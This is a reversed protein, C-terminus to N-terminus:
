EICRDNSYTAEIVICFGHRPVRIMPQRYLGNTDIMKIHLKFIEIHTHTNGFKPWRGKFSLFTIQAMSDMDFHSQLKM